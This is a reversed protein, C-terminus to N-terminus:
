ILMIHEFIRLYKKEGSSIEINSCENFNFRLIDGNSKVSIDECPSLTILDSTNNTFNLSPINPIKYTNQTSQVLFSGDINNWDSDFFFSAVFFALVFILLFDIIKKM